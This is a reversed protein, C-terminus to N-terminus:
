HASGPQAELAIKLVEQWQTPTLQFAIAGLNDTQIVLSHDNGRHHLGVKSVPLLAIGGMKQAIAMSHILFSQISKALEAFLQSPILVDIAEGTELTAHVTQVLESHAIPTVSSATAKM